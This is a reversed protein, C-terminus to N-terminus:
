QIVRWNIISYSRNLGYMLDHERLKILGVNKVFYYDRRFIYSGPKTTDATRLSTHIVHTFKNNNVTCSDLVETKFLFCTGDPCLCPSTAEQGALQDPWLAMYRRITSDSVKIKLELKDSYGTMSASWPSCDFSLIISKLFDSHLYTETYESSFEYDQDFVLYDSAKNVVTVTDPIGTSDNRYIWISGSDFKGINKL